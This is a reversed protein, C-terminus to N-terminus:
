LEEEFRWEVREYREVLMLTLVRVVACRTPKVLM